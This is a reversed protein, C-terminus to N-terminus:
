CIIAYLIVDKGNEEKRKGSLYPFSLRHEAELKEM